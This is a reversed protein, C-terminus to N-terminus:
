AAAGKTPAVELAFATTVEPHLKASLQHRGAAKIPRDIVIARRDLVPGGAKVIAQAIDAGTVAGFLRGGVGARAAIRVQVRALQAALEQAHALDKAANAARARQVDAVQKQAGRTAMTAKGRPLLFNRGYGDKVQVVDGTAGLGDVDQTLILKM